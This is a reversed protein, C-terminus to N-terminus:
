TPKFDIVIVSEVLNLNIITTPKIRIAANVTLLFYSEPCFFIIGISFENVFSRRSPSRM